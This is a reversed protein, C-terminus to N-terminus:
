GRLGQTNIGGVDARHPKQPYEFCESHMVRRLCAVHISESAEQTYLGNNYIMKPHCPIKPRVLLAEYGM